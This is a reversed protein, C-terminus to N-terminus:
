RVNVKPIILGEGGAALLAGMDDIGLRAFSRADAPTRYGPIRVGWAPGWSQFVEFCRKGADWGPVHFMHGGEIAGSAHIFGNADTAMMDAHWDSAVLVGGPTAGIARALEIPDSTWRFETIWGRDRMALAVGNASSGEYNRFDGKWEDWQQAEHYLAHRDQDGIITRLLWSRSTLFNCSGYAACAGFQGCIRCRFRNQNSFAGVAWRKTPPDLDVGALLPAAPHNAQGVENSRRRDFVPPWIPADIDPGMSVSMAKAEPEVDQSHNLAYGKQGDPERAVCGLAALRWPSQDHSAGNGV